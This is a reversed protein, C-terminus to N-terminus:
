NVAKAQGEWHPKRLETKLVKGAGSIPLAEILELSRPCKYGAILSKCHAYLTDQSLSQGPKLVVVAHVLEGWEQSPIGIVACSAVAPHKAIANEVEVCYINEGGSIIMDKLRDVITIYGEEDMTGMDGTHMWGGRLAAQTAEPKNLYGLMVNPGRVIVEGIQGRPLEKDEADVVRLQVHCAGRGASRLRGQARAAPLHQSPPLVSAVAAVETMGYGQYFAASPLAQMARDLLSESAPSAGYLLNRLSGLEHDKLSPHDVLAQLMAPVLLTDTVKTAAIAHLVLEPKFAPIMVHTGGRLLLGTSVMMDALHFMPAAHLGVAGEQFLGEALLALGSACVNRHSLMVGKPTGTTGGTYFVGLLEDGAVDTDVDGIPDAADILSELDKAYEPCPGEGCFVLFRLYPCADLLAEIHQSFHEDVFLAVSESDNLSYIIEPLSWRFNIPNVVAGAWPVALYYELYHDSNLALMAIRDGERMGQQRLAGALRSVRQRLELFTRKRGACITATENPHQQAARHLGQTFRM